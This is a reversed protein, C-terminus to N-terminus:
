RAALVTKTDQTGPTPVWRAAGAVAFGGQRMVGAKDTAVGASELLMANVTKVATVAPAKPAAWTVAAATAFGGQRRVEGSHKAVVPIGM